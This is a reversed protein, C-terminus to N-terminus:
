LSLVAKLFANRKREWKSSDVPRLNFKALLIDKLENLRAAADEANVKIAIRNPPVVADMDEFKMDRTLISSYESKLIWAAGMENLSVHSKYYRPSHVFLVFIEYDHFSSYLTQFIDDNLHIGYEPISSCFLTNEDFGLAELLDVLYTVFEKDDSSHSIFLLPLKQANKKVELNELKHMLLNYIPEISDFTTELSYGNGCVDAEKFKRFDSNSDEFNDSFYVLASTYWSHFAKITNGSNVDLGRLKLYETKLAQIEEASNTKTMRVPVSAEHRAWPYAAKFNEILEHSIGIAELDLIIAGIDIPSGAEGCFTVLVKILFDVFANLDRSYLSNLCHILAYRADQPRTDRIVIYTRSKRIQELLKQWDEAMGLSVLLRQFTSSLLFNNPLIELLDQILPQLNAHPQIM